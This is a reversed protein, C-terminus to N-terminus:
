VNAFTYYVTYAISKSRASDSPHIASSRSSPPLSAPLDAESVKYEDVTLNPHNKKFIRQALHSSSSQSWRTLKNRNVIKDELFMCFRTSKAKQNSIKVQYIVLAEREHGIELLIRPSEPLTLLGIIALPTPVACAILFTHWASFHRQGDLVVNLGTKPLIFWAMCAAYIGGAAWCTLLACVFKVRQPRPIFESFYAILIPM